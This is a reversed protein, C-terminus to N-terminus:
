NTMARYLEAYVGGHKMLTDHDGQQAIKGDLMVVIVDANKVTSLRHAVTISTKGKMLTSLANQVHIETRADIGSTAEDLILIPPDALMVRAICLLQTQGFSLATQDGIYTNYGDPLQSIFYHAHSNMAAKEIEDDSADPKGYAINDRITGAFLWSDQLVMGFRARLNKRPIRSIDTGDLRIVGANTELFRMILNIVTTKGSGTKGVVAVRSGKTVSLNFDEIFRKQNYSFCVHKFEISGTDTGSLELDHKFSEDPQDIIEFVRGAAAAAAQLQAIIGSIENFPKTYQGAYILFTSIQGVTMDGSVTYLAGFICAAAFVLANVFRTSPNTMASWVQAKLGCVALRDNVAGIRRCAYDEYGYAMLTERCSLLSDAEAALEGQAVTQATFHRYSGKAIVAATFLSVPTLLIVAATIFLNVSAMFILTGVILLLGSFLQTAATLLGDAVMDADNTASNVIKGHSIGDLTRLPLTMIKDFLRVRLDRVTKGTVESGIYVTLWQMVAVGTTVAILSLLLRPLSTFEVQGAQIIKDVSVGILVPVFLTMVVNIAACIFSLVILPAYPKTYILM